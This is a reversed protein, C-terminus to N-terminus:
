GPSAEAPFSLFVVATKGHRICGLGLLNGPSCLSNLPNMLLNDEVAGLAARSHVSGEILLDGYCALLFLHSEDACGKLTRSNRVRTIVGSKCAPSRMCVVQRNSLDSWNKPFPSVIVINLFDLLVFGAYTTFRAASKRRQIAFQSNPLPTKQSCNAQTRRRAIALFLLPALGVRGSTDSTRLRKKLLPSCTCIRWWNAM